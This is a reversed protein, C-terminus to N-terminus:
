VKSKLYEMEKISWQQELTSQALVKKEMVDLGLSLSRNQLAYFLKAEHVSDYLAHHLVGEFPVIDSNVGKLNANDIVARLCSENRYGWPFSMGVSEMAHALVGGDFRTGKGVIFRSEQKSFSSWFEAFLSLAKNLPVAREDEVVHYALPTSIKLDEWFDLVSDDWYALSKNEKLSGVTVPQYFVDELIGKEFNVISAGISLIGASQKLSTSEVDVVFYHNDRLYDNMM